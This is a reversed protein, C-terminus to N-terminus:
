VTEQHGKNKCIIDRNTFKQQLMRPFKNGDSFCLSPWCSSFVFVRDFCPIDFRLESNAHSHYQLFVNYIRLRNNRDIQPELDDKLALQTISWTVRTKSKPTSM